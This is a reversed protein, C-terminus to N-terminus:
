FKSGKQGWTVSVAEHVRSGLVHPTNLVCVQDQPLREEAGELLRIRAVKFEAPLQLRKLGLFEHFSPKAVVGPYTASGGWADISLARHHPFHVESWDGSDPLM